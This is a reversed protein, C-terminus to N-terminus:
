VGAPLASTARSSCWASAAGGGDQGGRLGTRCQKERRSIMSRPAVVLLPLVRTTGIPVVRRM